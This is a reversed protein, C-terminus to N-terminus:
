RFPARVAGIADIQGGQATLFHSGRSTFALRELEALKERETGTEVQWFAKIQDKSWKSKGITKM